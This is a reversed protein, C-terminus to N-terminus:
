EANEFQKIKREHDAEAWNKEESEDEFEFEAELLSRGSEKKDLERAEKKRKLRMIKREVKRGEKEERKLKYYFHKQDSEDLDLM